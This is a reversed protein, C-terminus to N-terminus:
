TSRRMHDPYEVGFQNKDYGSRITPSAEVRMIIYEPLANQLKKGIAHARQYGVTYDEAEFPEGVLIFTPCFEAM